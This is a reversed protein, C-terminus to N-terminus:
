QMTSRSESFLPLFLIKHHIPETALSLTHVISWFHPRVLASSRIIGAHCRLQSLAMPQRPNQSNRPCLEIQLISRLPKCPSSTAAGDSQRAQVLTHANKRHAHHASFLNGSCWHMRTHINWLLKKFWQVYRRCWRQLTHVHARTYDNMRTPPHPYPPEVLRHLASTAQRPPTKKVFPSISTNDQTKEIKSLKHTFTHTYVCVCVFVHTNTYTYLSTCM